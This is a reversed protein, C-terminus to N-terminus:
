SGLALKQESISFMFFKIPSKDQNPEEGHICQTDCICADTFYISCDLLLGSGSGHWVLSDEGARRPKKWGSRVEICQVIVLHKM